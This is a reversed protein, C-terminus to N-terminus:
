CMYTRHKEFLPTVGGAMLLPLLRAEIEEADPLTDANFVRSPKYNPQPPKKRDDITAGAFKAVSTIKEWSTLTEYPLCYVNAQAGHEIVWKKMFGEWFLLKDAFFTPWDAVAKGKSREMEYWSQISHFPHRYQVIYGVRQMYPVRLDFDHNKIFGNGAGCGNKKMNWPVHKKPCEILEGNHRECSYFECYNTSFDSVRSLFGVLAHHGSRPFSVVILSTSRSVGAPFLSALKKIM